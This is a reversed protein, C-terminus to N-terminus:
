SLGFRNDTVVGELQALYEQAKVLESMITETEASAKTNEKTEKTPMIAMILLVAAIVTVIVGPILLMMKKNNILKYLNENFNENFKM